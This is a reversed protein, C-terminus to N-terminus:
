PEYFRNGFIDELHFCIVQFVMIKRKQKILVSIGLKSNCKLNEILFTGVFDSIEM